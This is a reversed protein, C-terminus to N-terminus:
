DPNYLFQELVKNKAEWDPLPYYFRFGQIVDCRLKQLTQVQEDTEVGEVLITVGLEHGVQIMAKLIAEGSETMINDILSKDLKIGDVPYKQLDYFSTFGEGFDDLAIRVGYEKLAIINRQIQSINKTPVSETLEFILLERPFHYSGMIEKCRDVFDAAAFTERSFNCSIFFTEIKNEFLDELFGCVKRLCNYDLKSIKKERELLPVFFDPTLLGKQPHNWRSLAEGGVTQFSHSDVYFQIYLQFENKDFAQEINAQLQKEEALEQLMRDSCIVYDKNERAAIYAAQSASFIMENLDRDESKLSYVGAAMGVEFPKSYKETYARIRYFLPTFWEDPKQFNSSLKLLVFGRDSVKALIDTDATYEQLVVACYRLFEDAEESDGLRRLRDIDVYFYILSYLIRNRDNIFQKYYRILSDYNGLGTTDDIELDQQAKKLKKQYHKVLLIIVSLLIVVAFSLAGLGWYFYTPNRMPESSTILYGSVKEQSVSELFESLDSKLSEPAAQTFCLQYIVDEGAQTTRFITLAQVGSPVADGQIYGSVIDVQFNGALHERNDTKGVQYYVIEYRSQASFERFLEPIVGKYTQSDADYYELPYADPNGAAYVLIKEEM